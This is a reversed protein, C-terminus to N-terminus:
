ASGRELSDRRRLGVAPATFLFEVASPFGAPKDPTRHRGPRGRLHRARAARRILRQPTLARLRPQDPSGPTNAM